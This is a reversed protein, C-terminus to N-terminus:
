IFGITKKNKRVNSIDIREDTIYDEVDSIIITRDDDSDETRLNQNMIIQDVINRVTRANAFNPQCKFWDTIELVRELADQNIAYRKKSLFLQKIEGLESRTYDEFNLSFQIRSEFGPNSCLLDNMEEKYGALIVCFQGRKDEMEKLLVGVAEEGFNTTGGNASNSSLLGYAEDIFLVGNM